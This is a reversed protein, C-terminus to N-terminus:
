YVTKNYIKAVKLKYIKALKRCIKKITNSIVDIQISTVQLFYFGYSYCLSAQFGDRVAWSFGKPGLGSDRMRGKERDFEFKVCENWAECMVQM